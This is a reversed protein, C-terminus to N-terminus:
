IFSESAGSSCSSEYTQVPPSGVTICSLGIDTLQKCCSLSLRPLSRAKAVEMAATDGLDLGNSLDPDMLNPCAAVLAVLGAAGFGM